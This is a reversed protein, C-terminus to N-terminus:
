LRNAVIPDCRGHILNEITLLGTILKVRIRLIIDLM